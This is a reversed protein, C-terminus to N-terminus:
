LGAALRTLLDAVEAPVKKGRQARLHNTFARTGNRLQACLPTAHGPVLTRVLTCLDAANVTVTFTTTATASNGASDTATATLTTSGLPLTYAAANVTPCVSSAIGTGADTASCGINIADLIGYTGANGTFSISPATTDTEDGDGDGDDDGDGGAPPVVSLTDIRTPPATPPGLTPESGTGGGTTVNGVEVLFLARRENARLRNFGQSEWRPDSLDATRFDDFIFRGTQNLTTGGAICIPPTSTPLAASVPYGAIIGCHMTAGSPSNVILVQMDGAGLVADGNDIFFRVYMRRVDAIPGGGHTVQGFFDLQGGFQTIILRWDSVGPPLAGLAPNYAYVTSSFVSCIPDSPDACLKPEIARSTRLSTGPATVEGCAAVTFAVALAALLSHLRARM